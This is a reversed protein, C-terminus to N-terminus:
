SEKNRVRRCYLLQTPTLIADAKIDYRNAPINAVLQNDYSLALKYFQTEGYATLYKDYYGAGYGVRNGNRDFALGPLLMLKNYSLANRGEHDLLNNRDKVEEEQNLQGKYRNEEEGVPELIGFSSIVLEELAIIKYFEMTKAEVRPVYVKKHDAIAQRIINRTDVESRFSVYTFIYKSNLYAPTQFLKKQLAESYDAQEKLTLSDRFLRHQRRIEDKTM